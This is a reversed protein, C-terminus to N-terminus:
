DSQQLAAATDAEDDMCGFDATGWEEDCEREFSTSERRIQAGESVPVQGPVSPNSMPVHADVALGGTNCEASPEDVEYIDNAIFHPMPTDGFDTSGCSELEQADKSDLLDLEIDDLDEADSIMAECRAHSPYKEEIAKIVAM